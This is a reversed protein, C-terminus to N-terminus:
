EEQEKVISFHKETTLELELVVDFGAKRLAVIIDNDCYDLKNVKLEAIKRLM